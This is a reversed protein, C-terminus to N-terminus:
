DSHRWGGEGGTGREGATRIYKDLLETAAARLLKVQLVRDITPQPGNGHEFGAFEHRLDTEAQRAKEDAQKWNDFLQKDPV